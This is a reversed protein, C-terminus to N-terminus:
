KKQTNESCVHGVQKEDEKIFCYDADVRSSTVGCETLYDVTRVLLESSWNMPVNINLSRGKHVSIYM